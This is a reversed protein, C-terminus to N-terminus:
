RAATRLLGEIEEVRRLLERELAPDKLIPLVDRRTKSVYRLWRDLGEGRHVDKIVDELNACRDACKVIVAERDQGIRHYYQPADPDGPPETMREVLALLKQRDPFQARLESRPLKTDELVDHMLAGAVCRELAADDLEIVGEHQWRLILTAALRPHDIYPTFGDARRQGIAGHAIAAIVDALAVTPSREIAAQLEPSHPAPPKPYERSAM